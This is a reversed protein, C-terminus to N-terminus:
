MKTQRFFSKEINCKLLKENLKNLTFELKKIHYTWDVKTLILLDDIYEHIFYFGHFLDNTKQQFIYPSNAVGMPLRKCRYKRWM